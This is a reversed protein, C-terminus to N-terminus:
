KLFNERYCFKELALTKAIKLRRHLYKEVKKVNSGKARAPPAAKQYKSCALGL